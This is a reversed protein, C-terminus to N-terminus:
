DTVKVIHFGSYAPIVKLLSILQQSVFVKDNM